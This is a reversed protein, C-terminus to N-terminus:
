VIYILPIGFGIRTFIRGCQKLCVLETTKQQICSTTETFRQLQVPVLDFVVVRIDREDACLVVHRSSQWTIFSYNLSKFPCSAPAVASWKDHRLVSISVVPVTSPAEHVRQIVRLEYRMHEAM